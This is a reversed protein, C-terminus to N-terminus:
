RLAGVEAWQFTGNTLQCIRECFKSSSCSRVLTRWLREEPPEVKDLASRLAIALDAQSGEVGERVAGGLKRIKKLEAAVDM